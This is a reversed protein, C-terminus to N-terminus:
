SLEIKGENNLSGISYIFPHKPHLGRYVQRTEDLYYTNKHIEKRKVSHESLVHVVKGNIKAQLTSNNTKEIAGILNGVLPNAPDTQYIQGHSDLFYYEGQYFFRAVEPEPLAPRFSKEESTMQEQITKRTPQHVINLLQMWLDESPPYEENGELLNRIGQIGRSM